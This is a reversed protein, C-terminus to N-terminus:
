SLRPGQDITQGQDPGDRHQVSHSQVSRIGRDTDSEISKAEDAHAVGVRESTSPNFGASHVSPVSHASVFASQAAHLLLGNGALWSLWCYCCLVGSFRLMGDYLYAGGYMVGASLDGDSEDQTRDSGM